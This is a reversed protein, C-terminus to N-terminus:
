DSFSLKFSFTKWGTLEVYMKSDGCSDIKLTDTQGDTQRDTQRDTLRDTQSDTVGDMMSTCKQVKWSKWNEGCGSKWFFNKFFDVKGIKWNKWFFFNEVKRSKLNDQKKIEGKNGSKLNEM